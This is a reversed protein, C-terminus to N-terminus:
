TGEVEFAVGLVSDVALITGAKARNTSTKSVTQDDVFYCANFVDTAAIGGDNARWLITKEKLFDVTVSLTTNTAASNDITEAFIGLFVDNAGAAGSGTVAPMVYGTSPRGMATGGKYAKVAPGLAMDLRTAKETTLMLEAALATM